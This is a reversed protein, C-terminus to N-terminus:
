DKSTMDSSGRLFYRLVEYIAVEFVRDFKMVLMVIEKKTWTMQFDSAFDERVDGDLEALLMALFEFWLSFESRCEEFFGMIDTVRGIQLEVDLVADCQFSDM